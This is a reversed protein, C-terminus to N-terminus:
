KGARTNIIKLKKKEEKNLSNKLDRLASGAYRYIMILEDSKECCPFMLLMDRDIEEFLKKYDDPM